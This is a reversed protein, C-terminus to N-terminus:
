SRRASILEALAKVLEPIDIEGSIGSNKASDQILGCIVKITNDIEQEIQNSLM